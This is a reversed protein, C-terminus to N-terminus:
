ERMNYSEPTKNHFKIAEMALNPALQALYTFASRGSSSEVLLALTSTTSAIPMASATRPAKNKTMATKTMM